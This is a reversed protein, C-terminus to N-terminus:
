HILDDIADGILELMKNGTIGMLNGVLHRRDLPDRVESEKERRYAGLAQEDM